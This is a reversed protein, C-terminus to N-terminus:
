AKSTIPHSFHEPFQIDGRQRIFLVDNEDNKTTYKFGSSNGPTFYFVAKRTEETAIKHVLNRLDVEDSKSVIDFIHLEEGQHRSIAIIEEEEVYYVDDQFASVCYFMFLEKTNVTGFKESIPVRNTVFRDVFQLDDNNVSPNLKRIKSDTKIEGNIELMFQSEAARKFGFKPYFELVSQNAFLYFFDNTNEYEGLIIEMLKRSLGRGRYSPNTMVTGIQIARKEEGNILVDILNVSVNAIIKDGDAFSYPIYKDTWYGKEYWSEFDIGFTQQALENFSQRLHNQKEYGKILRM